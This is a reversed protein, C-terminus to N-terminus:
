DAARGATIRASGGRLRALSRTTQPLVVSVSRTQPMEEAEETKSVRRLNRLVESCVAM